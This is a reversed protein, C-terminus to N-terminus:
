ASWRQGSARMAFSVQDAQAGHACFGIWYSRDKVACLPRGGGCARFGKKPNGCQVAAYEAPCRVIVQGDSLVSRKDPINCVVAIPSGGRDPHAALRQADPISNASLNITVRSFERNLRAIDAIQSGTECYHTYLFTDLHEAAKFIARCASLFLRKGNGPLDGASGSRFLTDPDLARIRKCHEALDHPTVQTKMTRIGDTVAQWHMRLPGSAAYCVSLFACTLPCTRASLISVAIRGTKKNQSRPNLSYFLDKLRVIPGRKFLAKM